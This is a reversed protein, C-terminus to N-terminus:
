SPPSIRRHIKPSFSCDNCESRSTFICLHLYIRPHTSSRNLAHEIDASGVLKKLLCRFFSTPLASIELLIRIILFMFYKASIVQEAENYRGRPLSYLSIWRRHEGFLPRVSCPRHSRPLTLTFPLLIASTILYITMASFRRMPIVRCPIKRVENETWETLTRMDKLVTWEGMADNEVDIETESQGDHNDGPEPYDMHRGVSRLSLAVSLRSVHRSHVRSQAVTTINCVEADDEELEMDITDVAGTAAIHPVEALIPEEEHVEAVTQEEPETEEEEEAEDLIELGFGCTFDPRSDARAPM